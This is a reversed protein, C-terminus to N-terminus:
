PLQQLLQTIVYLYVEYRFLDMVSAITISKDLASSVSFWM